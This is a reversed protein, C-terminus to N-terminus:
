SEEHRDTCVVGAKPLLPALLPWRTFLEGCRCCTYVQWTSPGDPVAVAHCEPCRHPKDANWTHVM